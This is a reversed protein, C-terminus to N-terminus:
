RLVPPQETESDSIAHQMSIIQTRSFATFSFPESLHSYLLALYPLALAFCFFQFPKVEGGGGSM